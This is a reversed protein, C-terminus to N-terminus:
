SRVVGRTQRLLNVESLFTTLAFFDALGMTSLLQVTLDNLEGPTLGALLEAALRRRARARRRSALMGWLRGWPTGSGVPPAVGLILLAAFDGLPGCDGAVSLVEAAVNEADMRVAPLRGVAASAAILTAVTAPRVTYARGRVELRRPRELVTEAVRAEIRDTELM